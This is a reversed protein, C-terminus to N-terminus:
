PPPGIGSLRLLTNAPHTASAASAATGVVALACYVAGGGAGPNWYMKSPVAVPDSAENSWHFNALPVAACDAV